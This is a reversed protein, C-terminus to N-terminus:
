NSSRSRSTALSFMTLLIALAICAFVLGICHTPVTTAPDSTYIWFSAWFDYGELRYSVSPLFLAYSLRACLHVLAVLAAIAVIPTAIGLTSRKKM